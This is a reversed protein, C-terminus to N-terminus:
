LHTLPMCQMPTKWSCVLIYVYSAIRIQGIERMDVGTGRRAAIGLARKIDEWMEVFSDIKPSGRGVAGWLVEHIGGDGGTRLWPNSAIHEAQLFECVKKLEAEQEPKLDKLLLKQNLLQISDATLGFSVGVEYAEMYKQNASLLEFLKKVLGFRLLVVEQEKLSGFLCLVQKEFDDPTVDSKGFEGLYGFLAYQKLCCPEIVSKVRNERTLWGCLVM